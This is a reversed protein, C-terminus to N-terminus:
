YSSNIIVNKRQTKWNIKEKDQEDDNGEKERKNERRRETQRDRVNM